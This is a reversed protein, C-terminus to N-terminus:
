MSCELLCPTMHSLLRHHSAAHPHSIYANDIGYTTLFITLTQRPCGICQM